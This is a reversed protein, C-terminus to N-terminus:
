RASAPAEDLRRGAHRLFEALEREAQATRAHGAARYTKARFELFQRQWPPNPEFLALVEIQQAAPLLALIEVLTNLRTPDALGGPFPKLLLQAFQPALDRNAAALPPVLSLATQVNSLRAWIQPRLAKFGELLHSTADDYAEQRFASLAAALHADAPWDPLVAHYHPLFQEATGAQATAELLMLQEAPSGAQGTWAELVGPFDGKAFAAAAEARRQNEESLDDPLSFTAGDAALMRQREYGLRDRDIQPALHAPVDTEQELALALVQTTEFSNDKSLARAFGYELLNRDDTNIHAPEAQFLRRAFEPSALHRALVGEASNTLWVRKLAEAFLPQASRTRLQEMTYGPASLHGIFLLDNPGSIWTEVHPFVSTLTAYVQRIAQADVEYGQVWQAFLGHENLRAKAAAYFEQTFLTSVGARYPNSPESIILDYRGGHALLAERADGPILRVNSKSLVSRNVPAFHDRALVAMAPELEVVDVQKMEPVDAVWGATTGTGLGVVFASHPAPHLMAPVLGQMIQTDADGFASGDSKGNVYLCYGDDSSVAAVSAERGEFEHAIKWRSAHLWGRLGNISAPLAEVRGYGIPKHRWAASPGSGAFMLAGAALWLAALAPGSLISFSRLGLLAAGLSLLLTLVLVAQWAGPASLWPLLLFGGALSGTIAGLTNAAYAFGVHRGANRSGSGLLGVLLPFQVGALVSPMFVLLGGILSWGTIQGALGLSRLQNVEIAFVAIRDGLAWPLALFLAQWAAVRALAGLTVAGARAAWLTRYLLGGLGIGALALALVLGFGYVSSGLLPALIRFWVLESLFFTFGTIGAVLYIFRRTLKGSSDEEEEEEEEYEEEEERTRYSTEGRAVYWAVAGIVLNVCAAAVVTGRIGWLELLWFTSGLVGALAGLTNVGYLVGLSGRQADQDTEVWKFAAPLSGGMLLCPPALVVTALLLQLLTAPVVGLAAIGGTSLYLWRVLGLLLPTLLAAIGVGLEIFAYLRLPNRSAEARRGFLASGAGMAGMFIALVAATAPTAGGFVLRFERLWAMQYILACAGSLALLAALFPLKRNNTIPVCHTLSSQIFM